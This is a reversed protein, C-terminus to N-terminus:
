GRGSIPQAGTVKGKGPPVSGITKPHLSPVSINWQCKSVNSRGLSGAGALGGGGGAGGGGVPLTRILEVLSQLFWANRKLFRRNPKWYWRSTWGPRDDLGHDRGTLVVDLM